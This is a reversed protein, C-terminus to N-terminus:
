GAKIDCRPLGTAGTINFNEEAASCCLIKILLTAYRLPAYRLTTSRLTVYHLTAYRLPAYRVINIIMLSRLLM